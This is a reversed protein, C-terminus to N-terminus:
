TEAGRGSATLTTTAAYAGPTNTAACRSSQERCIEIQMVTPPHATSITAAKCGPHAITAIESLSGGRRAMYPRLGLPTKSVGVIDREM